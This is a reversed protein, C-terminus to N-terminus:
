FLSFVFSASPRAGRSAHIAPRLSGWLCEGPVGAGFANRPTCAGAASWAAARRGALAVGPAARCVQLYAPEVGHYHAAASRCPLRSCPPGGRGPPLCARWAHTAPMAATFAVARPRGGGSVRRPGPSRRLRSRGARPQQSSFTSAGSAGAAPAALGSCRRCPPPPPSPTPVAEVRRGAAARRGRQSPSGSADGRHFLIRALVRREAARGPACGRCQPLAPSLM